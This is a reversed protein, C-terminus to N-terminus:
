LKAEQFLREINLRNIMDTFIEGIVKEAGGSGMLKMREANGTVVERAVLKADLSLSTEYSVDAIWKQGILKIHFQHITIQFVPVKPSPETSVGVGLKQLRQILATEFLQRLEYAGLIKHQDDPMALSLAFLGTFHKFKDKARPDFIETDNRLDRTEVWVTRGSLTDAPSPLSYDVNIYSNKACSFFAAAVLLPVVIKLCANAIKFVM